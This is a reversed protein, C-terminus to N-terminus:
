NFKCYILIYRFCAFNRQINYKILLWWIPHYFDGLIAPPWLIFFATSPKRCHYDWIIVNVFIISGEMSWIRLLKTAIEYRHLSNSKCYFIVTVFFIKAIKSNEFIKLTSIRQLSAPIEKYLCLIEKNPHCTVYHCSPHCLSMVPSMAPSM